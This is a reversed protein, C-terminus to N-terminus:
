CSWPVTVMNGGGSFILSGTIPCNNRVIISVQQEQGPSLEGASPNISVQGLGSSSASWAVNSQYTQPVSLLATCTYWHAHLTCDTAANFESPTVILGPTPTPTPTPSPTPITTPLPTPTSKATPIPRPSPQPSPTASSMPSPVQSPVKSPGGPPTQPTVRVAMKPSLVPPLAFSSISIVIVAIVISSITVAIWLYRSGQNGGRRSRGIKSWTIPPTTQSFNARTGTVLEAQSNVVVVMPHTVLEQSVNQPQSVKIIPSIVTDQETVEDQKTVTNIHVQASEARDESVEALASLPSVVEQDEEEFPEPTILPLSMNILQQIASPEQTREPDGHSDDEDAAEHKIEQSTDVISTLPAPSQTSSIAPLATRPAAPIALLRAQFISATGLAAIFDKISGHRADQQKALAKLIAEEMRIPLLMNLQTPAPPSEKAHKLGLASFDAASFPVSGTFLEYGICGLAYQDSAKSAIGQFQEPALYRASGINHKHAGGAADLLIHITFDTLLVDGSATFLINEPKLNGHIINRQHVYQLAQGIQSLITLSEQVPVSRSSQRNIRDRLSGRPAYETVQYPTNEHIGIDLIPLLHPHKLLKLLRAERLLHSQGQQSLHISHWLKIAVSREKHVQHEGRFVYSFPGTCIKAAIRYEGILKGIYANVGIM